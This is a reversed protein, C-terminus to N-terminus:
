FVNRLGFPGFGFGGDLPRYLLEFEEILENQDCKLKYDFTKLTYLVNENTISLELYMWVKPM